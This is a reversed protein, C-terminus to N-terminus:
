FLFWSEQEKRKKGEKIECKGDTAVSLLSSSILIGLLIKRPVYLDWQWSVGTTTWRTGKWQTRGQAHHGRSVGGVRGLMLQLAHAWRVRAHTKGDIVSSGCDRCSNKWLRRDAVGRFLWWHGKHHWLARAFPDSRCVNISTFKGCFQINLAAIHIIWCSQRHAARTTALAHPERFVNAQGDNEWWWLSVERCTEGWEKIVFWHVLRRQSVM